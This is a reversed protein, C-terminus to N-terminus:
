ASGATKASKSFYSAPEDQGLSARTVPEPAEAPPKKPRGPGRKGAAAAPKGAARAPRGPKGKGSNKELKVIGDKVQREQETHYGKSYARYEETDPDYKPDLRANKGAAALGEKYAREIAAPRPADLFLSLQEGIAADSYAAALMRDAMDSKFEAEGEPTQLQLSIKIQQVTYGYEKIEKQFQRRKAAASNARDDLTKFHDRMQIFTRKLDADVLNHTKAVKGTPKGTRPSKM